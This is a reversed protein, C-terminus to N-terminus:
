DGYDVESSTGTASVKVKVSLTKGAWDAKVTQGNELVIYGDGETEVMTGTGNDTADFGAVSADIWMKLTYNIPTGNTVTADNVLPNAKAEALTKNTGLQVGDKFLAVKVYKEDLTAGELQLLEVDHVTTITNGTATYNVAFNYVVVDDTTTSAGAGTTNSVPMAQSLTLAQTDETFGFQLDGATITGTNTSTRTYTFFAYSVGVTVIVLAFVGLVSMLVQNKKEM